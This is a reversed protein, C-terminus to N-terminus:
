DLEVYASDSVEELQKIRMRVLSDVIAWIQSNDRREAVVWMVLVAIAGGDLVAEIIVNYDM